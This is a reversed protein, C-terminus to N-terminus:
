KDFTIEEHYSKLFYLSVSLIQEKDHQRKWFQLHPLLPQLFSGSSRAETPRVCLFVGVEVTNWDWMLVYLIEMVITPFHQLFYDDEEVQM